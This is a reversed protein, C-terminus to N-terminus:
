QCCTRYVAMSIQRSSARRLSWFQGDRVTYCMKLLADIYQQQKEEPVLGELEWADGRGERTDALPNWRWVFHERHECDSHQLYRAALNRSGLLYICRCPLGHEATFGRLKALAVLVDRDSPDPM